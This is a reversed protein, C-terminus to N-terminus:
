CHLAFGLKASFRLMHQNVLPGDVDWVGGFGPPSGLRRLIQRDKRNSRRGQLEVIIEPFNNAVGSHMKMIDERDQDNLDHDAVARGLLSAIQDDAKTGSNCGSCCAFELGQLRHKNRFMMKPPM